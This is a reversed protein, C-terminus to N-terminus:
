SKPLNSKLDAFSLSETLEDGFLYQMSQELSWGFLATLFMWEEATFRTEGREKKSYAATTINFKPAINYQRLGLSRRAGAIM